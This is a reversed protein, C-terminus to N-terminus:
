AKPECNDAPLAGRLPVGTKKGREAQRRRHDRAGDCPRDDETGRELETGAGKGTRGPLHSRLGDARKDHEKEGRAQDPKPTSRAAKDRLPPAHSPRGETAM